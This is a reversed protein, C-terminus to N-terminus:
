TSHFDESKSIIRRIQPNEICLVIKMMICKIHLEVYFALGVLLAIKKWFGKWGKQSSLGEGITKAKILGTVCDFVIALCVFVILLGYQQYFTAVAGCVVSVLWKFWNDM